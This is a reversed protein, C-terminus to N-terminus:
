RDPGDGTQGAYRQLVAQPLLAVAETDAYVVARDHTSLVSAPATPTPGGRFCSSVADAKRAGHVICIIEQARLIQWISMTMAHTPVDELRAFWQEGVQQRRSVVDLEVLLFPARADFDAPPENFALHGNEGIGTFALDIPASELARGAAAMVDDPNGMGDLLHYRRIGTRALIRDTLFRSFSGPHDQPLGVYEDLHFLEVRSWDIAPTTTVLELFGLQSSGTAAIIRATSRERLARQLSAAAHAAARQNLEAVTPFVHIQL